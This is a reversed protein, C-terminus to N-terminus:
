NVFINNEQLFEMFKLKVKPMLGRSVPIEAGNKMTISSFSLSKIFRLSVIYGRHVRLFGHKSLAKDIEAMSSSTEAVSGDSMFVNQFNRNSEVYEILNVDIAAIGSRKKLIIKNDSAKEKEGKVFRLFASELDTLLKSKRVFAFPSVEFTDFVKDERGSVFIIKVADLSARLIKGLKIGSLEPMEVDLFILDFTKTKSRELFDRASFFTEVGGTVSYKNMLSKVASSVVDLALKEDDCVAISYCEKM